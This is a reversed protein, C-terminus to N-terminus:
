GFSVEKLYEKLGDELTHRPIWGLVSKAKENKLVNYSLDYPRLEGVILRADNHLIRAISQALDVLFTGVGTSINYIEFKKPHEVALRFASIVDEIYVYDRVTNGCLSVKQNKAIQTALYSIVGQGGKKIQCGGYSNSMRLITVMMSSTSAFVRLYNECAIKAIAYSCMPNTPHQEDVPSSTEGYVTGGSSAYILHAIKEKACANLLALTFKINEVDLNPDVAGIAPTTVTALHVVTTAGSISKELSPSSSRYQSYTIKGIEVASQRGVIWCHIGQGALHDYLAQGLYGRGGVIAVNGYM